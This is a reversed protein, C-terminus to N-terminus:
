SEEGPEESIPVWIRRWCGRVRHIARGSQELHNLLVGLTNPSCQLHEYMERHSPPRSNDKLYDHIFTYLREAKAEWEPNSEPTQSQVESM